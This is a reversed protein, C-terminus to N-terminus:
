GRIISRRHHDFVTIPIVSIRRNNEFPNVFPGSLGPIDIVTIVPGTQVPVIRGLEIKRYGLAEGQWTLRGKFRINDGVFASEPEIELTLETLMLGTEAKIKTFDIIIDQEKLTEVSVEVPIAAM